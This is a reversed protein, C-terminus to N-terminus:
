FQSLIRIKTGFPLNRTSIQNMSAKYSKKIQEIRDKKVAEALTPDTPLNKTIQAEEVDSSILQNSTKKDIIDLVGFPIIPIYQKMLFNLIKERNEHSILTNEEGFFAGYSGGLDM